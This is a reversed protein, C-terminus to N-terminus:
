KNIWSKIREGATKIIEPVQKNLETVTAMGFIGSTLIISDDLMSAKDVDFYDIAAGGLYHALAVGGVFSLLRKGYSATEDALKLSIAAGVIAPVLTTFWAVTKTTMEEIM